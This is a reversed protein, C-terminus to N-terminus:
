GFSWRTFLSPIQGTRQPLDNWMYKALHCKESYARINYLYEHTFSINSKKTANVDIQHIPVLNIILNLLSDSKLLSLPAKISAVAADSTVGTM